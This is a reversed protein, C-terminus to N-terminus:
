FADRVAEFKGPRLFNSFLSRSALLVSWPLLPVRFRLKMFVLLFLSFIPSAGGFNCDMGARKPLLCFSLHAVCFFSFLVGHVGDLSGIVVIHLFARFSSMFGKEFLSNLLYLVFGYSNTFLNDIYSFYVWSELCIGFSEAICLFFLFLSCLLAPSPFVVAGDFM